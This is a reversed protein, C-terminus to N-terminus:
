LKDGQPQTISRQRLGSKQEKPQPQEKKSVDPARAPSLEEPGEKRPTSVAPPWTAPSGEPLPAPKVEIVPKSAGIPPPPMPSKREQVATQTTLDKTLPALGEPPEPLGLERRMARVIQLFDTNYQKYGRAIKLYMDAAQENKVSLANQYLNFYDYGLIYYTHAMYEYFDLMDKRMQQTLAENEKLLERCRRETWPTICASCLTLAGLLAQLLITQRM